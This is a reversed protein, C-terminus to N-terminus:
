YLPHHQHGSEHVLASGDPPVVEALIGPQALQGVIIAGGKVASQDITCRANLADVSAIHQREPPPPALARAVRFRFTRAIASRGSKWTMVPPDPEPLLVRISANATTPRSGMGCAPRAM